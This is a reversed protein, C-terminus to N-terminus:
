KYLRTNKCNKQTVLVALISPPIFSVSKKCPKMIILPPFTAEEVDLCSSKLLQTVVDLRIDRGNNKYCYLRARRRMYGCSRQAMSVSCKRSIFRLPESRVFNQLLCHVKPIQCRRKKCHVEMNLLLFLFFSFSSIGTVWQAGSSTDQAQLPVTYCRNTGREEDRWSGSGPLKMKRMKDYLGSRPPSCTSDITEKCPECQLTMWQEGGGLFRKPASGEWLKKHSRIEGTGNCLLHCWKNYNETQTAM